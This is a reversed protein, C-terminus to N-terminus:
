IKARVAPLRHLDYVWFKRRRSRRHQAAEDPFLRPLYVKEVYPSTMARLLTGYGIDFQVCAGVALGLGTVDLVLHDSSAGLVEAAIRPKLMAPDADQRGIALIAREVEGKEQFVPVHGFADQAIEGYPRSPKTKLEIVEAVLTFVNTYLGPIRKRTLPDCGLLLAEGIRLHNILGVDQTSVFWQYNASNGGSVMALPIGYQKQLNRAIASLERMKADTPKIGGFCALNAGLGALEVGRLRMVEAAVPAVEAPMIGERLDGLEVMLIVQQVRGRRAAQRALLRIVPLETNVSVDAFEVVRAVESPMPSRILIFQADVGAARMKQINALRSDGFSAMGSNMLASAIRPSGCVGKTVATVDIGKSGYLAMLTRANHVLKDLDIEIRPTTM